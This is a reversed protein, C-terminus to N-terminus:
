AGESEPLTSAPPLKGERQLREIAEEILGMKRSGMGQDGSWAIAGLSGVQQRTLQRRHKRLAWILAAEQELPSGFAELDLGSLRLLRAQAQMRHRKARANGRRGQRIATGPVGVAGRM